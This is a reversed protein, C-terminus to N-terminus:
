RAVRYLAVFAKPPDLKKALRGPLVKGAESGRVARVLGKQPRESRWLQEWEPRPQYAAVDGSRVFRNASDANKPYYFYLSGAPPVGRVIQKCDIQAWRCYWYAKEATMPDTYVAEKGDRQLYQVLSREGFRPNTNSLGISVLSILAFAAGAAVAAVPRRLWLRVAVWIAAVLYLCYACVTYYRPLLKQNTLAAAAFVLWVAALVALMRVLQRVKPEAGKCGTVAWWVAPIALLALVSFQHQHTFFMIVPDIPAWVHLNGSPTFELVGVDARDRLGAGHLMLAFRYAPNGTLVLYYVAEVLIVISFGSAVIWYQRRPIAYGVLFLLGYFIPLAASVEHTSFALGSLVGSLLLLWLRNERQCAFYFLWFSGAVFFLEPIDANPITAHIALLPMTALVACIALARGGGVAKELAIMTMALTALFFLCTSLVISFESEGLIGVMGAIPIGVMTRVEGFTQAVYPFSHLWGLGSSAYHEDDSSIFGTWALGLVACAWALLLVFRLSAVIRM